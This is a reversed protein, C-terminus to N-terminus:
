LSFRVWYVLKLININLELVISRLVISQSIFGVFETNIGWLRM